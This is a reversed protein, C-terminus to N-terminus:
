EMSGLIMWQTTFVADSLDFKWGSSFSSFNLFFEFLEETECYIEGLNAAATAAFFIARLLGFLNFSHKVGPACMGSPHRFHHVFVRFYPVNEIKDPVIKQEPVIWEQEFAIKFPKLKV